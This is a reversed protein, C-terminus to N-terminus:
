VCMGYANAAFVGLFTALEYLIFSGINDGFGVLWFYVGVMLGPLIIDVPFESLIKSAYYASLRYCGSQRERKIVPKESPFYSIGRFM